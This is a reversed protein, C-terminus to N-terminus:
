LLTPIDVMEIYKRVAFRSSPKLDRVKVSAISSGQVQSRKIPRIEITVHDSLGFPACKTPKDYYTSLNTLVIDLTNNERTPINVLQKLNYCSRLRSVNLKNFDGLIILGCNPFRSEVRSLCNSLYDLMDSNDASPPHYVTSIILNAIGRPLRNPRISIWLIEFSSNYLEDLVTFAISDKIYVCVGGHTGEVRDRRILNYGQINIINDHIHSQLWTEVLSVFEYNGCRIVERVEDIKPSLSMVNSLLFSPVYETESGKPKNTSLDISICNAPNHGKIEHIYNSQDTSNM